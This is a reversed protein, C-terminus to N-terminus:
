ADTPALWLSEQLNKEEETAEAVPIEYAFLSSSRPREHGLVMLRRQAWLPLPSFFDFRVGADTSSRRYRQPQGASRDIALQLHWAADCGRWCYHKPPLDVIRKLTGDVLEAFSWIPAGFEQPRRAVFTGTQGRPASWRGRYYTVKTDRDLIELGSVPGCPPQSALQNQFRQILQEPAQTKPSRLWVSESLQHLGHAILQETLDEGEGPEPAIFQTVHSRIVRRALHEPLFGDQDPAIGTLFISGTRRVVFSPPAAFVWTGKVEPDDTAVDSLELLDGAVIMVEILNDLRDALGDRDPNLYALSETLAARLASRSCPCHIGAARRLLGALLIDDLGSPETGIGLSARCHGLVEDPTLKTITTM